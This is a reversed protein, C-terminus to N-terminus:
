VIYNHNALQTDSSSHSELASSLGRQKLSWGVLDKLVHLQKKHYSRTM